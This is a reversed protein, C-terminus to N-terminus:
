EIYCDHGEIRYSFDGIVSKMIKMVEDFSAKDSFRFNYKDDNFRNPACHFRVNFKRQLVTGMEKVTVSRFVLEGRQWATADEVDVRTLLSVGTTKNYSVQEGPLLIYDKGENGCVVKVKGELLTAEMDLDDAYAKVNFETGLATVSMTSSRVIFPQEANKKVKFNAEGILFVTRTSGMFKEPYLLLTGANIHVITGDPLKILQTEGPAVYKEITAVDAYQKKTWVHATYVSVMLVAIAAAYRLPGLWYNKKQMPVRVGAKGYVRQLKDELNLETSGKVNTWYEYLASNKEEAHQEDTLWGYFKSKMEEDQSSSTFLNIIDKFYNRM